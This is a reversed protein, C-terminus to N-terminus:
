SYRVKFVKQVERKGKVSMRYPGQLRFGQGKIGRAVLRGAIEESVLIVGAPALSCLRAALNVTDGIVTFDARTDSGIRGQVLGGMHIGIGVPLDGPLNKQIDIAAKIAELCGAEPAFLAMVEDGVYKDIDGGARQIIGSQFSLYQNLIHVVDEADHNESYSTFGRIDTFMVVKETRTTQEGERLGAM